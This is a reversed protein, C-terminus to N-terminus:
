IDCRSNTIAIATPPLIAAFLRIRTPIKCHSFAAAYPNPQEHRGERQHQPRAFRVRFDLGGLYTRNPGHGGGFSFCPFGNHQGPVDPGFVLRRQCKADAPSHDLSRDIDAVADLRSLHEGLEVGLVLEIRQARGFGSENGRLPLQGVRAAVEFSLPLQQCVAMGGSGAEILRLLRQLVRLGLDVVRFSLQLDCSVADAPGGQRRVGGSRNGGSTRLLALDHLGPM